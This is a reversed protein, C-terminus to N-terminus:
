STHNKGHFNIKNTLYYNVKENLNELEAESLSGIDNPKEFIIKIESLLSILNEDDCYKTVFSYIINYYKQVKKPTEFYDYEKYNTFFLKIEESPNFITLMVDIIFTFLTHIDKNLSTELDIRDFVKQSWADYEAQSEADLIPPNPESKFPERAKESKLLHPHNYNTGHVFDFIFPHDIDFIENPTVHLAICLKELIDYKISTTEGKIIKSLNNQSVGIEKSLAYISINQEDVIEQLRIKM